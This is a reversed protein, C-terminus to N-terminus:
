KDRRRKVEDLLEYRRKDWEEQQAGSQSRVYAAQWLVEFLEEYFKDDNM